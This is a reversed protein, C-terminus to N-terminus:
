FSGIFHSGYIKAQVHTGTTLTVLSKKEKRKKKGKEGNKEGNNLNKFKKPTYLFIKSENSIV